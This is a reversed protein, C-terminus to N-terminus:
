DLNFLEKAAALIALRAIVGYVYYRNTQSDIPQSLEPSICIDNLPIPQFIMGPSNLSENNKKNEHTRYFGGILYNSFSYIVPEAVNNSDKTEEFSYVGEQLIVKDPMVSGKTSLMKNRQKRNLNKIEAIDNISIIGMGYTGSDAKIMIYPKENISYKDYKESVINLLREAHYILCDEGKKTKFNIEGCNRFEPEILWSDIDLLNSFNTCVDSYYNFHETKSRMTWGINKSPLIVQKVSNLFEPIGNSLDNNLLIADPVFGDYELMSNINKFKHNNIGPKSVIVEFGAKEILTSLYNLSDIYYLNRTHDEPIILIKDIKTKLIDLSHKIATIYLSEFDKNLNNFGAPFLNTDVPSIKFGSNRIDISSYFPAPYKLWQNRFWGEILQHNDIIKEHINEHNKRNSYVIDQFVKM